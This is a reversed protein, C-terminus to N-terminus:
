GNILQVKKKGSLFLITNFFAFFVVGIQRSFINETFSCIIITLLFGLYFFDRSRISLVVPYFFYILLAALGFLGHRALEELYENHSNFHHKFGWYNKEKYCENLYPQVSGTGVGILPHEKFIEIACQLNKSRHFLPNVKQSTSFVNTYRRFKQPKFSLITLAGIVLCLLFFLYPKRNVRDFIIILILLVLGAFTSTRGTLLIPIIFLLFSALLIGKQFRLFVKAKYASYASYFSFTSFMGFYVHGFDNPILDNLALPGEPLKCFYYPILILYFLILISVGFVLALLYIKERNLAVTGKKALVVFLFPILVLSFKTGLHKAALGMDETYIVGVVQVFYFISFYLADTKRTNIRENKRKPFATQWFYFLGLIIIAITNAMLGLNLTIPIMALLLLEVREFLHKNTM